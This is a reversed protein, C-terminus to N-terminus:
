RRLAASYVAAYAEVMRDLTFHQLVRRRGAEGLAAARMPEKLLAAMAAGLAGADGPPVLVGTAGDCVVEPTGGVATAVIAREAAMAELLTLSIGESISSNVYLDFAPMLERVDNRQGTLHVSTELAVEAVTREIAARAPGEGVIVLRVTPVMSRAVAIARMLMPLDKVADLRAVTGVLVDGDAAGIRQRARARADADPRPGPDIGNWIVSMREPVAERLLHRRLDHSVAYLHPVGAM